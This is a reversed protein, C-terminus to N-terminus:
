VVLLFDPKAPLYLSNVTATVGCVVESAAGHQFKLGIYRHKSPDVKYSVLVTQPSTGTKDTFVVAEGIAEPSGGSSSDSGMLTATVTKNAGLAATSIVFLIETAGSTDVFNTTKDDENTVSQPAFVNIFSVEEYIRRM